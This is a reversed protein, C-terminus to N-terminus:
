KDGSGGFAQDVLKYYEDFVAVATEEDNEVSLMGDGKEDVSFVIAEDDAVGDIKDIPKLIVYLKEQYPIVAVQEFNISSGEEDVLVIPETNDPDLITELLGKKNSPIKNYVNDNM